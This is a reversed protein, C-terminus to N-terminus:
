GSKKRTSEGIENRYPASKEPLIRAITKGDRIVVLLNGEEVKSMYKEINGQLEDVSIEIM